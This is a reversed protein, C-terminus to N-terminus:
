ESAELVKKLKQLSAPEGFMAGQVIDARIYKVSDKTRENIGRYMNTGYDVWIYDAM